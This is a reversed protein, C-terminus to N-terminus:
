RCYALATLTGAYSFGTMYVAVVLQTSTKATLRQPIVLQGGTRNAAFGSGVLSTGKPCSIRATTSATDALKVTASALRPAVGRSCYAYATLTTPESSGNRVTVLWQTLGVRELRQLFEIHPATAGSNYGGSVVVTGAPCTAIATGVDGGRLPVTKSAVRPGGTGHDCYAVASM